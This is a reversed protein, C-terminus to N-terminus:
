KNYRKIEFAKNTNNYAAFIYFDGKLSCTANEIINTLKKFTNTKKKIKVQYIILRVETRVPLLKQFDDFINKDWESECCLYVKDIIGEEKQCSYAIMDFLWEKHYHYNLNNHAFEGNCSSYLKYEEAVNVLANKIADTWETRGGNKITISILETEISNIFNELNIKEM